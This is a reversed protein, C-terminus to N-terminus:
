VSTSSGMEFDIYRHLMISIGDSFLVRCSCLFPGYASIIIGVTGGKNKVQFVHNDFYNGLFFDAGIVDSLDERRYKPDNSKHPILYIAIDFRQGAKKSPRLRHALFVNRNDRYVGIRVDNWEKLSYPDHTSVGHSGIKPYVKFAFERAIDAAVFAALADKNEFPKCIHESRLKKKLSELLRANKGKDIFTKQWPVKEDIIYIFRELGKATAAKYESEIISCKDGKPISGYRHAYIGVFADSQEKILRLCKAKPREDHAGLHEMAIDIGGLQRIIDCVSKRYEALDIFTSSVFVNIM